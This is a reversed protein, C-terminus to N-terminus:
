YVTNWNKTGCQDRSQRSVILFHSREDHDQVQFIRLSLNDCAPRKGSFALSRMVDESEKERTNSVTPEKRPVKDHEIFEHLYVM